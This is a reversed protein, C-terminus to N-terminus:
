INEFFGHKGIERVVRIDSAFYFEVVHRIKASERVNEKVELVFFLDQLTEWNERDSSVRIIILPRPLLACVLSMTRLFTLSERPAGPPRKTFWKWRPSSGPPSSRVNCIEPGSDGLELACYHPPNPLSVRWFFM